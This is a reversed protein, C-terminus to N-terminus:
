RSFDTLVPIVVDAIVDAGPTKFPPRTGRYRFNGAMYERDDCASADPIYGMSGDNYGSTLVCPLPAEHKIKLGTRVFPEFPMGVYGVDGFRAVVVEMPLYKPTESAKGTRHQDLAWVHWPKVMEVLRARYPPTLAKPFNLGVCELTNEDGGDARRIFDEISALDRKISSSDPLEAHPINVAKRTWLMDTHKSRHLDNTAAIFSDGLYEGLERSQEITGTLMYKSNIDGCCGQFFAVPIGGLHHSLKECAVQPWQGFSVMAEPNYGSVPHGTYFTMAAVPRKKKGRFIVVMADTDITGTYDEGIELRDEERIFYSRGDPRKGRRNYTLRDEHAIGWEVTVPALEKDLDRSALALNELFQRTSKNTGDDAPFGGPKGWAEPNRVMMVPVTHNHSSCAVINEPSLGLEKSILAKGARNLAGSEVGFSSTLFCLRSEGYELLIITSKLDGIVKGIKSGTRGSTPEGIEPTVAFTRAAVKFVAKKISNQDTRIAPCVEPKDSAVNIIAIFLSIISFIIFRYPTKTM